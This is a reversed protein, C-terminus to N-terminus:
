SVDFWRGCIRVFVGAHGTVKAPEIVIVEEEARAYLLRAAPHSHDYLLADCDASWGVWPAIFALCCPVSRDPHGVMGLTVDSARTLELAPGVARWDVGTVAILDGSTTRVMADVGGRGYGRTAKVSEVHEPAILIPAGDNWCALM